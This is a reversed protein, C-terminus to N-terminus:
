SKLQLFLQSLRSSLGFNLFFNCVGYGDTPENNGDCKLQGDKFVKYDWLKIEAIRTDKLNIRM